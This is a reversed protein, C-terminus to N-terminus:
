MSRHQVLHVLQTLRASAKPVLKAQELCKHRRRRPPPPAQRRRPKGTEIILPVALAVHREDLGGDGTFLAGLEEGAATGSMLAAVVPYSKEASLLDSGVPKGTVECEGFVGLLDDRIQGALGLHRGFVVLLQTCSDDVGGALAGLECAAWMLAAAKAAAMWAFVSCSVDGRVEFSVDM